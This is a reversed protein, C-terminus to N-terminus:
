PGAEMGKKPRPDAIPEFDVQKTLLNVTRRFFTEGCDPNMCRVAAEPIEVSGAEKQTVYRRMPKGCEPCGIKARTAQPLALMRPSMPVRRAM